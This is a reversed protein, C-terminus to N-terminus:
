FYSTIKGVDIPLSFIEVVVGSDFTDQDPCFNLQTPEHQEDNKCVFFGDVSTCWLNVFEGFFM